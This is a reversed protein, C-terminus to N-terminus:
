GFQGLLFILYKKVITQYYNAILNEFGDMLLGRTISDLQAPTLYIDFFKPRNDMRLCFISKYSNETM